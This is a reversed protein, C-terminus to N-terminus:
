TIEKLNRCCKSHMGSCFSAQELGNVDTLINQRLSLTRLGASLAVAKDVNLRALPDMLPKVASHLLFSMGTLALIRPDLERLRNTTLDLVQV